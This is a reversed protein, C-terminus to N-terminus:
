HDHFSKLCDWTSCHQRAGEANMLELEMDHITHKILQEELGRKTKQEKSIRIHMIKLRHESVSLKMFQAPSDTMSCMMLVMAM